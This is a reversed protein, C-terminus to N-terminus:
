ILGAVNGFYVGINSLLVKSENTEVFECKGLFLNIKCTIELRCTCEVEGKSLASFVRKYACRANSSACVCVNM